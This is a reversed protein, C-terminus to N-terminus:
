DQSLESLKEKLNDALLGEYNKVSGAPVHINQLNELSELWELGEIQPASSQFTIDRLSECLYLCGEGIRKLSPPLKLSKLKCCGAFSYNGIEELSNGLEVSKLDKSDRFAFHGVKRLGEPLTVESVFSHAFAFPCIETVSDRVKYRNNGQTMGFYALLKTRTYDYLAYPDSYFDPSESDIFISSGCFPNDIIECVSYPITVSAVATCGSFAFRGIKELSSPLELSGFSICGEFARAEIEKLSSPFDVDLLRMSGSFAGTGIVELSEPFDIFELQSNSFALSCIRRVGDRITYDTLEKNGQLLMTGDQSYQVGYEDTLSNRIDEESVDFM